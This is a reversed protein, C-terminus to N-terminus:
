SILESHESKGRGVVSHRCAVDDTLELQGTEEAAIKGPVM